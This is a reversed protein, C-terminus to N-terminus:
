KKGNRKKSKYSPIKIKSIEEFQKREKASLNKRNLQAKARNQALYLGREDALTYGDKDHQVDYISKRFAKPSTISIEEALRKSKVPIDFISKKAM